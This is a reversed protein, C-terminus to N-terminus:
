IKTRPRSTAISVREAPCRGAEPRSRLRADTAGRARVERNPKRTYDAVVAFGASVRSHSWPGRREGQQEADHLLCGSVVSERRMEVAVLGDHDGARHDLELPAVRMGVQVDRGGVLVAANSFVNALRVADRLQRAVANPGLHKRGAGDHRHPARLRATIGIPAEER